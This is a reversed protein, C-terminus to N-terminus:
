TFLVHSLASSTGKFLVVMGQLPNNLVEFFLFYQSRVIFIGPEEQGAKGEINKETM